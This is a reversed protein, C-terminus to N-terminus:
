ACDKSGILDVVSSVDVDLIIRIDDVSKNITRIRKKEAENHQMKRQQSRSGTEERFSEANHLHSNSWEWCGMKM